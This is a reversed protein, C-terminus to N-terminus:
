VGLEFYRAVVLLMLLTSVTAAAYNAAAMDFDERLSASRARPAANKKATDLVIADITRDM